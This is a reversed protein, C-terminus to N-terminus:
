GELVTVVLVYTKPVATVIALDVIGTHCIGKAALSGGCLCIYLISLLVMNIGM